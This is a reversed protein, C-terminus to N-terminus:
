VRKLIIDITKTLLVNSYLSIVDFGAFKYGSYFWEKPIEQITNAADISDKVTFDNLTVPNM